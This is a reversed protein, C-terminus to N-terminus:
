ITIYNILKELLDYIWSDIKIYNPFLSNLICAMLVIITMLSITKSFTTVKQNKNDEKSKFLGLLKDIASVILTSKM